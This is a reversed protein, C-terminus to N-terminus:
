YLNHADNTASNIGGLMRLINGVNSDLTSVSEQLTSIDREVDSVELDDLRNDLSRYNRELEEIRDEYDEGELSEIRDEHDSMFSVQEKLDSITGNSDIRLGIRQDLADILDTDEDRLASALVAVVEEKIVDRLAAILTEHTFTM